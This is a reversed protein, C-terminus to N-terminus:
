VHTSLVITNQQVEIWLTIIFIFAWYIKFLQFLENSAHRDKAIRSKRLYKIAKHLDKPTGFGHRFCVASYTIPVEINKLASKQYYYFAKRYDILFGCKGEFYIHGINCASSADGGSAGKFYCQVAKELDCETCAINIVGIWIFTLISLM